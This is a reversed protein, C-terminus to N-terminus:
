STLRKEIEIQGRPGVAVTTTGSSVSYNLNNEELDTQDCFIRLLLGGTLSLTLDLAAHQVEAQLIRRDLITQVVRVMEGGAASDDGSGCLVSDSSELRWACQVFIRYEGEYKRQRESLNPNRIPNERPVEAGIDLM